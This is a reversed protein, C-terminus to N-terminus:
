IGKTATWLYGEAVPTKDGCGILGVLTFVGLLLTTFPKILKKTIKM